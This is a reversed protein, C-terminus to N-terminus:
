KNSDILETTLQDRYRAGLETRNRVGLQAFVRSLHQEVTKASIFLSNAIDVNRAGLAALRAVELERLSLGALPSSPDTRRRPRNPRRVGLRRLHHLVLARESVAGLDGALLSAATWAEIAADPETDVLVSGLDVLGWLEDLRLGSRSARDISERILQPADDEHSAARLVAGSYARMFAAQPHPAPHQNDWETLLDRAREIEGVRAYLEASIVRLERRCRVCDAAVADEDASELLAVVLSRFEDPAFRGALTAAQQRIMLRCHPNQEQDALEILSVMSKRWDDTSAEIFLGFGSLRPDAVEFAQDIRTGLQRAEAYLDRAEAVRGLHYVAIALEYTAFAVMGPYIQQSAETIVERLRAEVEQWRNLFRLASCSFIRMDIHREGLGRSAEVIEDTVELMGIIDDDMLRAVREADLAELYAQRDSRSLADSSGAERILSRAANVARERFPKAGASDHELWVLRRFELADAAVEVWPDGHGNKRARDLAAAAAASRGVELAYRAAKTAAIARETATPSLESLKAFREAASEHDGVEEALSAMEVALAMNADADASPTRAIADLRALGAQGLLRRQPSRAIALGLEVTATGAAEAHDLAEMLLRVDGNSNHYLQDSLRGHLRIQEQQPLQASATERVLDHATGFYGASASVLGRNVLETLAAHTRSDPWRLLENIEPVMFPRAAVVLGALCEAADPSLTRLLDAVAQSAKHPGSDRRAAMLIWFPSGGGESWLAAASEDSLSPNAMRGLRVGDQRNLPGLSLRVCRGPEALLEAISRMFEASGASPRSACLFILPQRKERAARLLYHALARSMEDMWQLDDIVIIAPSARVLAQYTAEFMRISELGEPGTSSATLLTSLREGEPGTEALARFLTAAAGLPVLREPEFGTMRLLRFDFTTKTVEALLRSKGVGPEGIILAAGPGGGRASAEVLARLARVEDARGVLEGESDAQRM